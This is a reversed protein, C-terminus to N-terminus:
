NSMKNLIRSFNIQYVKEPRGRHKKSVNSNALTAVESEHLVNLIRNATRLTVNLYDSLIKATIENTGREDIVSMIKSINASSLPIYSTLKDVILSDAANIIKNESYLPGILQNTDDIIYTCNGGLEASKINANRANSESHTKTNGIGWGININYRINNLVDDIFFDRYGNTLKYLTDKTTHIEIKMSSKIVQINYYGNNVLLDSVLSCLRALIEDNDFVFKEDSYEDSDITIIGTALKNKDLRDFKLKNLVNSFTNLISESSPSIYVCKYGLDNLINSLIYNRTISLNIKNNKWLDLHIDLLIDNLIKFDHVPQDIDFDRITYPCKEHDILSYIDYYNNDLRLFDMFMKSIDLSRDEILEKFIYKYFDRDGLRLYDMPVTINKVNEKIMSYAIVGSCVFADYKKVNENYINILKTYSDFNDVVILDVECKDGIKDITKYFWDNIYYDTTIFGIRYKMKEEKFKM